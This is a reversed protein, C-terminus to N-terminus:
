QPSPEGSIGGRSHGHPLQLCRSVHPTSPSTHTAASTTAILPVYSYYLSIMHSSTSMMANSEYYYEHKNASITLEYCSISAMRLRVDAAADETRVTYVADYPLVDAVDLYTATSLSRLPRAPHQHVDPANLHPPSFNMAPSANSYEKMAPPTTAITWSPVFAIVGCLLLSLLTPM